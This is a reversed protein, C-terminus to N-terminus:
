TLWGLTLHSEVATAALRVMVAAISYGIQFDHFFISLL